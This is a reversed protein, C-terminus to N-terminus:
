LLPLRNGPGTLAGPAQLETGYDATLADTNPSKSTTQELPLTKNQFSVGCKLIIFLFTFNTFWVLHPGHVREEVVLHRLRLM